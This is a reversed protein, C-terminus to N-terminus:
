EVTACAVGHRFLDFRSLDFGPFGKLGGGRQESLARDAFEASAVLSKKM